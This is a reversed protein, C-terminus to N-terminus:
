DIYVELGGDWKIKKGQVGLKVACTCFNIMVQILNLKNGAFNSIFISIIRGQNAAIVESICYNTLQYKAQLLEFKGNVYLSSFTGEM